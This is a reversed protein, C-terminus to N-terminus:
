VKPEDNFYKVGVTITGQGRGITVADAGFWGSVGREGRKGLVPVILATPGGIGDYSYDMTIEAITGAEKRESVRLNQIGSGFSNSRFPDRPQILVPQALLAPLGSLQIVLLWITFQKLVKMRSSIPM